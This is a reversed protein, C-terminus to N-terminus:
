KRFAGRPGQGKLKGTTKSYTNKSKGSAKMKALVQRVIRPNFGSNILNQSANKRPAQGARKKLAKTMATKGKFMTTGGPSLIMNRITGYNSRIKRMSKTPMKNLVRMVGYNPKNNKNALVRKPRIKRPANTVTNRTLRVANGTSKVVRFRAKPDYRKLGKATKIYFAGTKPNRYIVRRMSNMFGTNNASM